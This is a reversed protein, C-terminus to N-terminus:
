KRGGSGILTIICVQRGNEFISPGSTDLLSLDEKVIRQSFPRLAERAQAGTWAQVCLIEDGDVRRTFYFRPAPYYTVSLRIERALPIFKRLFLELRQDVNPFLDNAIVIDYSGRNPLEYWDGDRLFEVSAPKEESRIREAKEHACLESLEYCHSRILRRSLACFGGGVDLIRQQALRGDVLDGYIEHYMLRKPASKSLWSHSVYADDGVLTEEDLAEGIYDAEEYRKLREPSLLFM